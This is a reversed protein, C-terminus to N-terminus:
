KKTIKYYFNGLTVKNVKVIKDFTSKYMLHIDNFSMNPYQQKDQELIDKRIRVHTTRIM